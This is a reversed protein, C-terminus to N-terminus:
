RDMRRAFEELAEVTPQYHQAYAGNKRDRLQRYFKLQRPLADIAYTGAWASKTIRFSRGDASAEVVPKATM